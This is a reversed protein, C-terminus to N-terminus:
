AFAREGWWHNDWGIPKFPLRLAMLIKEMEMELCEDLDIGQFLSLKYPIYIELFDAEDERGRTRLANIVDKLRYSASQKTETLSFTTNLRTGNTEKKM